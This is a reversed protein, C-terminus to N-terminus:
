ANPYKGLVDQAKKLIDVFKTMQYMWDPEHDSVPNRVLRNTDVLYYLSRLADVVEFLDSDM